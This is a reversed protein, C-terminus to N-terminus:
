LKWREYFKKRYRYLQAESIYYQQCVWQASVDRTMVAFVAEVNPGGVEKCLQRIKEQVSKPQKAFNQCIFFIHGQEKYSRNVGRLKKFNM